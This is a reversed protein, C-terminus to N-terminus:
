GGVKGKLWEYDAVSINFNDVAREIAAEEQIELDIVSHSMAREEVLGVVMQALWSPHYWTRIGNRFLDGYVDPWESERLMRVIEPVLQEIPTM